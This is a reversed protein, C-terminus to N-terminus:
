VEWHMTRIDGIHKEM